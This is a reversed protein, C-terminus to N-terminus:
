WGGRYFVLAVPGEELQLLLDFPHGKENPLEFAPMEQSVEIGISTETL